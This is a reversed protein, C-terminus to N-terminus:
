ALVRFRTPTVRVAVSYDAAMDSPTWGLGEIASGYKHVYDPQADVRPVDPDVAAVGEISVIDEAEPDGVLHLSVKPNAAINRLKPAERKSYFLLTAGDWHFWVPTSQPQGDPTVTTLWMAIESRLKEDARAQKPDDLDLSVM